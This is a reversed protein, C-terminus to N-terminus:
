RRGLKKADYGDQIKIEDIDTNKDFQSKESHNHNM